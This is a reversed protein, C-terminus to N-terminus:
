LKIIKQQIMQEGIIIRAIYMGRMLDPKQLRLRHHKNSVVFTENHMLVGSSNILSFQGTSRNPATVNVTIEDMFPNPSIQVELNEVEDVTFDRTEASQFGIAEVTIFDQKYITDSGYENFAILTVDFVGPQDYQIIISEDLSTEPSGGEFYWEVNNTNKSLSTFRIRGGINVKSNTISFSGSPLVVNEEVQISESLVIRGCPLDVTLRVEFDGFGTYTHSPKVDSSTLGDGFEWSYSAGVVETASFDFVNDTQTYSINLEPSDSVLIFNELYSTDSGNLNSAILQVDFSGTEDYQVTVTSLDSSEITAGEFIWEVDTALTDLASFTITQGKCIAARSISFLADPIEKLSLDVVKQITASSCSNSATLQVTYSNDQGYTHNPNEFASSFRDGYSWIYNDAGTSLNQFSIENSDGIRQFSFDPVPVGEVLIEKELSYSTDGKWAILSITNIGSETLRVSGDTIEIGDNLYWRLSDIGTSLNSISVDTGQCVQEASLSFDIVIEVSDIMAETTMTDAIGVNSSFESSGCGNTARLMVSYNGETQYTHIPSEETSFTGDGLNWFYEDGDTSQNDFTVTREASTSEYAAVPLQSVSIYDVFVLTDSGNQNSAILTVNYDGKSIYLVSPRESTSTEPIGGEFIWKVSTANQASSAFGVVSGACLENTNAGFSAFPLEIDIQVTKSITAFGCRNAGVLSVEYTGSQAYTHNTNNSTSVMGDGFSWQASQLHQSKNTFEVASGEVSFDFDVVPEPNVIILDEEILEVSGDDNTAVLKVSFTGPDMYAIIPNEEESSAPIGGEFEWQYESANISQNRFLVSGNQCLEISSASFDPVPMDSAIQITDSYIASQCINEVELSVAYSGEIAYTHVPSIDQSTNGDGFDWTLARAYQSNQTFSVSKGKVDYTFASVPVPDLISYASVLITDAGAENIAILGVAYSGLETYTVIPSEDSTNFPTGGEFFWSVSDANESLNTFQMSEGVCGFRETSTFDAVPLSTNQQTISSAFSTAGCTNSMTLTATINELSNYVHTPTQEESTQGDGFDWLYTTNDFPKTVVFVVTTDTIFQYTFEAIPNQGFSIVDSRELIDFTGNSGYIELRVDFTGGVGYNVIPELETSFTPNGGPFIWKVSDLDGISKNRYQVNVPVCAGIFEVDFDAMVNQSRECGTLCPFRLYRSNIDEISEISWENTGILPTSMIFNSNSEDHVAGFNHGLEHSFLVRKRNATDNDEVILSSHSTCITNVFALGNAATNGNREFDRKSWLSSQDVTNEWSDAAWERFDLLLTETDTVSTWPDCRSCESIFQEVLNFRIEDEFETDYNTQAANLMAIAHNEVNITSGYHEYMLYDSAIAMDVEICGDLVSKNVKQENVSEIFQQELDHDLGCHVTHIHEQDSSEYVMIDQAVADAKFYRLPEINIEQQDVQIFGHVFDDNITLAVSSNVNGKITGIYSIASSTNSEIIGDNTSRRVKYKDSLLPNEYIDLTYTGYTGLDLTQFQHLSKKKQPILVNIDIVEYASITELAASQSHITLHSQLLYVVVLLLIYKTPKM